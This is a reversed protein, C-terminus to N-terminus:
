RSREREPWLWVLLATPALALPAFYHTYLTLLSFISTAWWWLRENNELARWLSHYSLALLLLLLAYSPAEQSYYIQIPALAAVLGSWLAARPGVIRRGFLLLVGVFLTGSLASLSRLATESLGAVATWVWLLLYYLPPTNSRLIERPWDAFTVAFASIAEDFWLEDHGITYLRLLFAVAVLAAGLIWFQRDSGQGAAGASEPLPRDTSTHETPM